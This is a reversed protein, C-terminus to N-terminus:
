QLKDVEDILEDFTFDKTWALDMICHLFFVERADPLNGAEEKCAPWLISLDIARQRRRWWRGIFTTM